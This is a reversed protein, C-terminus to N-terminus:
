PRPRNIERVDTRGMLYDLSVGFYDALAVLGPVEPYGAGYEYCQYGRLSLHFLAALEQQTLRKEKRLEKIREAFTAM